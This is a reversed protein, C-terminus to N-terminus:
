QSTYMWRIILIPTDTSPFAVQIGGGSHIYKNLCSHIIETSSLLESRLWEMYIGRGHVFDYSKVYSIGFITVSKHQSVTDSDEELVGRFWGQLEM